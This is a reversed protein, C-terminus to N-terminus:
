ICDKTTSEPFRDVMEVFTFEKLKIPLSMYKALEGMDSVMDNEVWGIASSVFLVMVQGKPFEDFKTLFDAFFTKYGKQMLDFEDVVFVIREKEAKEKVSFLAKEFYRNQEKESLERAQYYVYTKDQVFKKVLTTKGIQERGYLVVISNGGKLYAQNLMALEKERGIFVVM